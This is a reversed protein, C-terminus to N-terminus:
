RCIPRPRSPLSNAHSSLAQIKAQEAALQQGAAAVQTTLFSDAGNAQQRGDNM